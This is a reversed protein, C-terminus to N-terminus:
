LSEQEYTGILYDVSTQLVEALRRVLLMRVDKQRGREIRWITQYTTEALAALQQQSMNMHVRKQAIRAGLRIIVQFDEMGYVDAVDDLPIVSLRQTSLRHQARVNAKELRKEQRLQKQTTRLDKKLQLIRAIEVRKACNQQQRLEAASDEELVVQIAECVLAALRTPDMVTDFWEGRQREKALFKHVQSEIRVLNAEVEVVALAELPFPQAVQLEKMRKAVRTRTSGIKVYSTGSAGIAYIYGHSAKGPM